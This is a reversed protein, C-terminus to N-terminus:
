RFHDLTTRQTPQELVMQEIGFTIGRKGSEILIRVKAFQRGKRLTVLPTGLGLSASAAACAADLRRLGGEAEETFELQATLHKRPDNGGAFVPLPAFQSDLEVGFPASCSRALLLATEINEFKGGEITEPGAVRLHRDRSETGHQSLRFIRFVNHLLVIKINPVVWNRCM